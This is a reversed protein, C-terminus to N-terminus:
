LVGGGWERGHVVEILVLLDYLLSQVITCVVRQVVVWWGESADGYPM